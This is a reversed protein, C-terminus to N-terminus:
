CCLETGVCCVHFPPSPFTPTRRIKSATLRSSTRTRVSSLKPVKEPEPDPVAPIAELEFASCCILSQASPRSEEYPSGGDWAWCAAQTLSMAPWAPPPPPDPM